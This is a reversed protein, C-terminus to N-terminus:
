RSCNGNRRKRIDGNELWETKPHDHINELAENEFTETKPNDHVTEMEGNEFTETKM